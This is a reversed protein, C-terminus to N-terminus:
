HLKDKHVFIDNLCFGHLIWWVIVIIIDYGVITLIIIGLVHHQTTCCSRGIIFVLFCRSQTDYLDNPLNIYINLLVFLVPFVM